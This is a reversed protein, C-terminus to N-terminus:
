VLAKSPLPDVVDMAEQLEGMRLNYELRDQTRLSGDGGALAVILEWINEIDSTERRRRKAPLFRTM